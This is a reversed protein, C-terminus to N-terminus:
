PGVRQRKTGEGVFCRLQAKLADIEMRLAANKRQWKVDKFADAKKAASAEEKALKERLVCEEAMQARVIELAGHRLDNILKDKAGCDARLRRLETVAAKLRSELDIVEATRAEKDCAWRGAEVRMFQIEGELESVRACYQQRAESMAASQAAFREDAALLRSILDAVRRREERLDVDLLVASGGEHNAGTVAVARLGMQQKAEAQTARQETTSLRLLADRLSSERAGIAVAHQKDKDALLAQCRADREALARDLRADKELLQRDKDALLQQYFDDGHSPQVEVVGQQEAANLRVPMVSRTRGQKLWQATRPDGEVFHASVLNFWQRAVSDNAVSLDIDYLEFDMAGCQLLAQEVTGHRAKRELYLVVYRKGDSYTSCCEELELAARLAACIDPHAVPHSFM